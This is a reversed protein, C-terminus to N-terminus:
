EIKLPARLKKLDDKEIEQENDELDKIIIKEKDVSCLRILHNLVEEKRIYIVLEILIKYNYNKLKTHSFIFSKFLLYRHIMMNIKRPTDINEKILSGSAFEFWQM